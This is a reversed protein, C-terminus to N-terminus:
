AHRRIVAAGRAVRVLGDGRDLSALYLDGVFPGSGPALLAPTLAGLAVTVDAPVFEGIAGEVPHLGTPVDVALVPAVQHRLALAIDRATGALAGTLGDGVLADIVLDTTPLAGSFTSVGGSVLQVAEAALPGLRDSTRDLVVHVAAGAERLRQAAFLGVAGDGGGGALVLISTLSSRAAMRTVAGAVAQGAVLGRAVSVPGGRVRVPVTELPREALGQLLAPGPQPSAQSPTAWPQAECEAPLTSPDIGGHWRSDLMDLLTATVGATAGWLLHREDLQWAWSLGRAPLRVVRWAAPDRLASLRVRLIEAVETEEAVLPHPQWRAVVPQLWFRSPPIYFAPLRGLVDVSRPDVGVEEVAERVATQEVREGVEVRGGPFAIQGPHTTLDDRRRTYVMELNGDGDPDAFLVLVAGLHGGEPSALVERPLDGLARVLPAWSDM